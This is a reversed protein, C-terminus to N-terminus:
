KNYAREVKAVEVRYDAYFVSKGKQQASLHEGVGKWNKISDLDRWYSITIGFNNEDRFGVHGLYGDQHKVLAEMQQAVQDYDHDDSKKQSYFAVIYYPPKLTTNLPFSGM